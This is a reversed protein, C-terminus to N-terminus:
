LSMDEDEFEGVFEKYEAKTLERCNYELENDKSYLIEEAFGWGVEYGFVKLEAVELEKCVQEITPCEDHEEFWCTHVSWACNCAVYLEIIEGDTNEESSDILFTRALYRSKGKNKEESNWDLFLDLFKEKNKIPLKVTIDVNAWNPM